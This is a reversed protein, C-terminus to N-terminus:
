GRKFETALVHRTAVLLEKRISVSDPCSVLLNVISKSISEEHPRICDAFSRLLYTLFSVTKVQAAKLETYQNKLNSPVQQPGPISIATVMLPLLISINSQVYRPYLQFLFMVILPCETVTKFSRTSPNLQGANPGGAPRQPGIYGLSHQSVALQSDSSNADEFFYNVTAKFNQYIKCVFELFPQVEQELAPRFSRHLDFIIRMCVLGNEENDTTVIHMLLKLLDQLFPRIVDTHPLRNLIEIIVNRLKHEISDTTQPKTLQTLLNSFVRFYSKLFNPYESTHVIEISDRVETALQYRNQMSLDPELFKRAHQDFNSVPIM